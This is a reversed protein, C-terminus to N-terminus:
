SKEKHDYFLKAVRNCLDATLERAVDDASKDGESSEPPTEGAVEFGGEQQPWLRVDRKRETSIVSVRVIFRGQYVPTGPERRLRFDTVKLYLVQDAGLKEGIERISLSDYAPDHQRMRQVQDFPVLRSKIGNATFEQEMREHLTRYVSPTVLLGQPDDLVAALLNETLKYKAEITDGGTLHYLTVAAQQCAGVLVLAGLGAARVTTSPGRVPM